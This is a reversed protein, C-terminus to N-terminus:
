RTAKKAAERLYDTAHSLKGYVRAVMSSDSHGMLISVTLADIGRRLAHHCWSHRLLTLCYKPAHQSALRNRLKRRAEDLLEAQSKRVAKGNSHRLPNLRRILDSVDKEPIQMGDKGLVAKGMRIRVQIFACNVSRPTWPEGNSNTFVRRDCQDLRRAVIAKAADDLYIIRPAKRMKDEGVPFVIRSEDLQVHRRELEVCEKARAGTAWAFDLLDRFDRNPVCRQIRAFEEGSIVIERRGAGPRRMGAIPSKDLHGMEVCWALCRKIAQIYNRRTTPRMAPMSELWEQVHFPRLDVCRLYGLEPPNREDVLYDALRQLRDIYWRATAPSQAEIRIFKSFSHIAGLM